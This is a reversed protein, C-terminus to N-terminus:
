TESDAERPSTPCLGLMSLVTATPVVIRRGLRIQPLAGSRVAEYATARSVGILEAAEAVTMTPRVQPDPVTTM